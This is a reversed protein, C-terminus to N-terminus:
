VKIDGLTLLSFVRCINNVVDDDSTLYEARASAIGQTHAWLFIHQTKNSKQKNQYIRNKKAYRTKAELSKSFLSVIRNCLSFVGEMSIPRLEVELDLAIDNLSNVTIVTMVNSGDLGARSISPLKGVDTWFLLGRAPDLALSHPMDIGNPVVVFRSSGNHRSVEIVNLKPDTWYLNGTHCLIITKTVNRIPILCDSYLPYM